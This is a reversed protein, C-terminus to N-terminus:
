GLEFGGVWSCDVLSEPFPHVCDDALQRGSTDRAQQSVDIRFHALFCTAISQEQKCVIGVNPGAVRLNLVVVSLLKVCKQVRM